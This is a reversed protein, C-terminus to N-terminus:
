VHLKVLQIDPMVSAVATMVQIRVQSLSGPDFSKYISYEKKFKENAGLQTSWLVTGSPNIL